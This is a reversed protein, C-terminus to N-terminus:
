PVPTARPVTETVCTGAASNAMQATGRAGATAHCTGAAVHRYGVFTRAAVANRVPEWGARTKQPRVCAGAHRVAASYVPGNYLERYRYM